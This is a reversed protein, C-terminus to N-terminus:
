TSGQELMEPPIFGGTGALADLRSWADSAESRILEYFLSKYSIMTAGAQQMRHSAATVDAASSYIADAIVFVSFRQDILDLVSQLVCVDTEGGALVLQRRDLQGLTSMVDFEGVISYTSKEFVRGDAPFQNNLRDPLKGKKKLPKELTAIVPVNAIPAVILLQELRALLSNMDGHARELFYPQVDILVLATSRPDILLETM